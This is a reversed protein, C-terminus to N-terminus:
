SRSPWAGVQRLLGVDDRCAWHEVVQGDVVRWIHIYTWTVDANTPEIGALLPMTSARHRGRMTMHHAVLEGEGILHHHEISTAAGLDNRITAIIQKWGERGQSPGAAHNVMREAILEDIVSDDGESVRRFLEEIVGKPDTSM